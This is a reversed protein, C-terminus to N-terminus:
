GPCRGSSRRQAALRFGACRGAGSLARTTRAVPRGPPMHRPWRGFLACAIGPLHRSLRGRRRTSGACPQTVAQRVRLGRQQSTLSRRPTSSSLLAYTFGALCGAAEAFGRAPLALARSRKACASGASDADWVGVGRRDRSCRAPSPAPQGAACRCLAVWSGGSRGDGDLVALRLIM